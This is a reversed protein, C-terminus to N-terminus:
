PAPRLAMLRAASEDARAPHVRPEAPPSDSRLTARAGPGRPPVPPADTLRSGGDVLAVAAIPAREVFIDAEAVQPPTDLLNAPYDSLQRSRDREPVSSA